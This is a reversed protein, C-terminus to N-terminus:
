WTLFALSNLITWSTFLTIAQPTERTAINLEFGIRIVWEGKSLNSLTWLDPPNSLVWFKEVLLIDLLHHVFYVVSLTKFRSWLSPFALDLIMLPPPHLHELSRLPTCMTFQTEGGTLSGKGSHSAVCLPVCNSVNLSVCCLCLYLRMCMCLCMCRCLCCLSGMASHQSAVCIPICQTVCLFLCMCLCLCLYLCLCLCLSGRVCQTAACLPVCQVCQKRCMLASSFWM